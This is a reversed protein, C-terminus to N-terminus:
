LSPYRADYGNWMPTDLPMHIPYTRSDAGCAHSVFMPLRTMCDYRCNQIVFERAILCGEYVFTKKCVVM